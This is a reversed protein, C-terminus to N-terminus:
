FSLFAPVHHLLSLELGDQPSISSTPRTICKTLISTALFQASAVKLILFCILEFSLRPHLWSLRAAGSLLPTSSSHSLHRRPRAADCQTELSSSISASGSLSLWRCLHIM